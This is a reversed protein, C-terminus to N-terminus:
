RPQDLILIAPPPPVGAHRLTRIAPHPAAIRGILGADPRTRPAEPPKFVWGDALNDLLIRGTGVIAFAICGLDIGVPRFRQELHAVGLHTRGMRRLKVIRHGLRQPLTQAVARRTGAGCRRLALRHKGKVFPPAEGGDPNGAIVDLWPDGLELMIKGRGAGFAEIGPIVVDGGLDTMEPRKRIGFPHPRQNTEVDLEGDRRQAIGLM